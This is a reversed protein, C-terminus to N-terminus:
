LDPRASARAEYHLLDKGEGEKGLRHVWVRTVEILPGRGPGRPMVACIYMLIYADHKM